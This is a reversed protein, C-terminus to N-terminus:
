LDWSAKLALPDQEATRSAFFDGKAGRAATTLPKLSADDEDLRHLEFGLDPSATCPDSAAAFALLDAAGARPLGRRLGRRVMVGPGGDLILSSRSM